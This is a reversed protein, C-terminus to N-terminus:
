CEEVLFETFTDALLSRDYKQKALTRGNHAMTENSDPNNRMQILAEAFARANGPPVVIGCEHSTILKALWGPYNNIVPLGLSIYDFFKNPSTGNYFAPINDLIMMGVDVNEYLYEFLDSKSLPSLFVCNDLKEIEARKILDPKLRGDGIFQFQIDDVQQEKLYKAADLVSGLGNAQGHAGTFAAILLKGVQKKVFGDSRFLDSGNPIIAVKKHPYKSKIGVAIGPALAICKDAFKYSVTELIDMLKLVVQNRVVGMARPLEPWLDRVEFIFPKKRILKAIIGPIGATLPTSTAFILDYRYKLAIRVGMVSYQFFLITRNILGDANSYPLELEIVDIGDVKGRRIGNVFEGSLGSRAIWYSGCVMTVQHGNRILTRAFEYSRTGTSGSPTSFHQHFYLIKM